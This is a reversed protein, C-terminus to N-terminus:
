PVNTGRGCAQEQGRAQYHPPHSHTAKRHVVVQENAGKTKQNTIQAYLMAHPVNTHTWCPLM